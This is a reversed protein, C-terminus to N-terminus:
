ASINIMKIKCSLINHMLQMKIAKKFSQNVFFIQKAPPGSNLQDSFGQM